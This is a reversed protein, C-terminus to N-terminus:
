SKRRQFKNTRKLPALGDLTELQQISLGLVKTLAADFEISAAESLKAGGFSLTLIYVRTWWRRLTRTDTTRKQSLDDAISSVCQWTVDQNQIRMTPTKLHTIFFSEANNDKKAKFEANHIGGDIEIVFGISRNTRIGPIVADVTHNGIWIDHHIKLKSAKQFWQVFKKQAITRQSDRKMYDATLCHTINDYAFKLQPMTFNKPTKEWLRIQEAIAKKLPTNLLELSRMENLIIARRMGTLMQARYADEERMIGKQLGTIEFTAAKELVSATRSVANQRPNVRPREQKNSEKM